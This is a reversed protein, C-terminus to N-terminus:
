KYLDYIEKAKRELEKSDLLDDADSKQAIAGFMFPDLEKEYLDYRNVPSSAGASPRFHKAAILAGSDERPLGFVMRELAKFVSM